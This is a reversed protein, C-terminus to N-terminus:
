PVKLCCIGVDCDIIVGIDNMDAVIGVCGVM